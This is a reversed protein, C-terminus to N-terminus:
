HEGSINLKLIWDGVQEVGVCAIFEAIVGQLTFPKRVEELDWAM